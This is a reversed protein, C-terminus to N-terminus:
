QKIDTLLIITKESTSFIKRVQELTAGQGTYSTTFLIFANNTMMQRLIAPYDDSLQPKIEITLPRREAVHRMGGTGKLYYDYELTVDVGKQEFMCGIEIFLNDADVKITKYESPKEYNPKEPLRDLQIQQMWNVSNYGVTSKWENVKARFDEQSKAYVKKLEDDSYYERYLTPKGVIAKIFILHEIFSRCFDDDTFMAQIKNHEPTESPERFNNIILTKISAYRTTFWDQQMLWDLYQKDQSLVEVPQGKYKGFPILETNSNM